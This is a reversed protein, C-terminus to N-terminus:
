GSGPPRSVIPEIYKNTIIQAKGPFLAPLNTFVIPKRLIYKPDYVSLQILKKTPLYLEVMAGGGLLLDHDRPLWSVDYIPVFEKTMKEGPRLGNWFESIEIKVDCDHNLKKVDM